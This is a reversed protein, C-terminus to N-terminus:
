SSHAQGAHSTDPEAPGHHAHHEAPDPSGGM